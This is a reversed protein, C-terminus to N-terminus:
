NQADSRATPDGRSTGYPALDGVLFTYRRSVSSSDGGTLDNFIIDTRDARKAFSSAEAALIAIKRAQDEQTTEDPVEYDTFTIAVERSGIDSDFVCPGTGVVPYRCVFAVDPRRGFASELHRALTTNDDTGSGGAGARRWDVFVLWAVALLAAMIVAASCGLLVKRFM